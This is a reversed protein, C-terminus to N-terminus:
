NEAKASAKREKRHERRENKRKAKIEQFKAKQEPTLISEFEQMHKQILEKKKERLPKMEQRIAMIEDKTAGAERMEKIKDKLAKMEKIIPEVKSRGAKRLNREQEMQEETLQLEQMISKHKKRMKDRHKQYDGKDRHKSFEQKHSDFDDSQALAPITQVTLFVALMALILKKM